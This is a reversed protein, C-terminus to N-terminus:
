SSEVQQQTRVKRLTSSELPLDIVILVASKCIFHSNLWTIVL